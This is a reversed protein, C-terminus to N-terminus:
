GPGISGAAGDISTNNTHSSSYMM